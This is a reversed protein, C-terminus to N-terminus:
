NASLLGALSDDIAGENISSPVVLYNLDDASLDAQAFTEADIPDIMSLFGDCTLYGVPRDNATVVLTSCGRSSFAEYIEPFGADYSITEPMTLSERTLGSERDVLTEGVQRDKSAIGLLRGERDVYPRVPIGSVRLAEALESQEAGLQLLAPFPEMIDQALVNVFPNGSAMEEKWAALEKSFEGEALISGDGSHEALELTEMADNLFRDANCSASWPVVASTLAPRPISEHHSERSSFDRALAEALKKVAGAAQGVLLTAFRGDGLYASVASDSTIRKIARAATNVLSNGATEGCKARIGAYWDISTM